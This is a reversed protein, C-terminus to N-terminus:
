RLNFEINLAVYHAVAKGDKMAPKFKAKYAAEVAKETLGDPLGRVVRVQKVEGTEDVLVRVVVIGTVKNKRAEDTYQPRV